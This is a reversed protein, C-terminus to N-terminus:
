CTSKTRSAPNAAAPVGGRPPPSACTATINAWRSATSCGAPSRAPPQDELAVVSVDPPPQIDISVPFWSGAPVSVPLERDASGGGRGPEMGRGVCCGSGSPPCTSPSWWLDQVEENWGWCYCEGSAWVLASRTMGALDDNCGKRWACAYGSMECIVVQRDECTACSCDGCGPCPPQPQDAPIFAGSPGDVCEDGCIEYDIGDISVVGTFSHLGQTDVPPESDYSVQTPFPEFFPGWKVKEHQADWYGGDSINSATWGAPPQDELGIAFVDPPAVINIEVPKLDGDCYSPWLTELERSAACEEGTGSLALLCPSEDADNSDIELTAAKAGATQPCFHVGIIRQAGPGLGFGGGGRTFDFEDANDGALLITGTLNATGENILTWTHEVTCFGVTKSGFDFGSLDECNLDPVLPTCTALFQISQNQAQHYLDVTIEIPPPDGPVGGVVHEFTCGLKSADVSYTGALVDAIQWLDQNGSTTTQFTGGTGDVTILVDEEGSGIPNGLDTYVAGGILFGQCTGSLALDCPNEDPDDSTIRLIASKPGVADCCFRVGVNRSMTPELAFTGGGETLEFIAADPGALLVEGNLIATGENIITWYHVDSCGGPITGWDYDTLDECNIDPGTGTGSLALDCPNEDPDDSTIHLTAEKAGISSPCFRVGVIRSEDPELTFGGGDQTFEFEAADPGELTISGTLPASGENTATWTHESSCTGALVTGFDFGTLDECNIDGVAPGTCRFGNYDIHSDPTRKDRCASRCFSPCGNWHSGRLVRSTGSGPGTPNSGPSSSYYTSSYWDHCWEWLNGSMDYCGYYSQADQTPYTGGHDTGDYYGVPTTCPDPGSEFPDGSSGYNARQGYLCNYGCGDTHEGFRFHRFQVPDWGAAKEWEAETPLRYGNVDFNCTWTSLDYCLPKGEMASRWNCYAVSGYWSVTVMPHDEKGAVVGFTSGNWTIRSYSSSTTTDCYPESDGAKYVVGGHLDPNDILGQGYAWNLGNCYQQNTVEYTDINYPSLYVTHVPLEDSGGESWPDGMEFGGGPVIVMDGRAGQRDIPPDAMAPSVWTGLVGAAAILFFVTWAGACRTCASTSPSNTLLASDFFRRTAREKM